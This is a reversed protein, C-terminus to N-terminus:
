HLARAFATCVTRTERHLKWLQCVSSSACHHLRIHLKTLGRPLPQGAGEPSLTVVFVWGHLRVAGIALLGLNADSDPGAVGHRM